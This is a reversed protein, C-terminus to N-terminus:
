VICPYNEFDGECEAGFWFRDMGSGEADVGSLDPGARFGEPDVGFEGQNVGSGDTNIIICDV